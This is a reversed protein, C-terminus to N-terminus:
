FDTMKVYFINFVNRVIYSLIINEIINNPLVFLECYLSCDLIRFVWGQIWIEDAFMNILTKFENSYLHLSIVRFLSMVGFFTSAISNTTNVIDGGFNELFYVLQFYVIALLWFLSILSFTGYLIKHGISIDAVKPWCGNLKVWNCQLPYEPLAGDRQRKPNYM